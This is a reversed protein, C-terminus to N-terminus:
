EWPMPDEKIKDVDFHCITAMQTKLLDGLKGCLLSLDKFERM